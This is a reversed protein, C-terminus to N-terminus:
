TPTGGIESIVRATERAAVRVADDDVDRHTVVRLRKPGFASLWVGAERLRAVVADAPTELDIMVINTEPEVVTCRGGERLIGAFARARAHDMALADRHHDLAYLAAAALVGVQRMGGGLMKRFRHARVVLERPGALVSGAPAGLGKSFCVTV